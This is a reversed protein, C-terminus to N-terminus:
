PTTAALEPAFWQRGPDRETDQMATVARLVLRAVRRIKDFDIKDVTDTSQHYDEHVDSFLFAVPIELAESFSAHDSRGWYSDADGLEPFGELPALESLLESIGNYEVHQETPTIQLLDPANRGVMDININAVVRSGAPLSPSAAFAQSGLLGKEEASVWVIMVSRKLAGSWGLARAVALLATTGSGNDDAGNWIEGDRQGVHDYHASLLIVQKALEPDSGPLLGVVNDLQLPEGATVGRTDRATLGLGEGVQPPAARGALALVRALGAASLSDSRFGPEGASETDLALSEREAMRVLGAYREAYPAAHQSDDAAVDEAVEGAVDVSPTTILGVAGRAVVNARRQRRGVLESEYCLAIAGTLDVELLEGEAAAGVWVLPGEVAGTRLRRPFFYYDEGFVFTEVGNPGTVTLSTAERDLHKRSVAYSWLYDGTPPKSWGWAELRAAIYRATQELGESPSDRGGREDAAIWTLDAKVDATLITDLVEDLRRSTASTHEEGGAPGAVLRPASQDPYPGVLKLMGADNSPGACAVVLVLATALCPGLPVRLASIRTPVIKVTKM